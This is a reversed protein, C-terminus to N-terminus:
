RGEPEEEGHMAREEPSLAGDAPVDDAVLEAEEDLGDGEDPDVLQVPEGPAGPELRDVDPRERQIRVDLPEGEREEEATTGWDVSARPRDNPPAQGEQPDGTAVKGPLPGDLDPVGEEDLTREHEERTAM